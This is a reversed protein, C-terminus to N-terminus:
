RRQAAGAVLAGARAAIAPAAAELADAPGLHPDRLFVPVELAVREGSPGVTLRVDVVWRFRGAVYAVYRPEAEVLLALDTGDPFTLHRADDRSAAFTSLYRDPPVLRPSLGRAALAAFLARDLGEPADLAGDDTALLPAVDVTTPTAAHATPRQLCGVLVLILVM